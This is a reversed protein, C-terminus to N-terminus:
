AYTAEMFKNLKELIEELCEDTVDLKDNSRMFDDQLEERISQLAVELIVLQSFADLKSFFSLYTDSM